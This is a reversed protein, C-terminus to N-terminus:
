AQYIRSVSEVDTPLSNAELRDNLRKLEKTERTYVAIAPRDAGHTFYELAWGQLLM